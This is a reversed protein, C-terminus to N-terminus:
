LKTSSPELKTKEMETLPLKLLLNMPSDVLDKMCKPTPDGPVSFLLKKHNLKMMSNKFLMETILVLNGCPLLKKISNELLM